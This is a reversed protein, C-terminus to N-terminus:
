KTRNLVEMLKKPDFADRSNPMTFPSYGIPVSYTKAYARSFHDISCVTTGEIKCLTLAEILM